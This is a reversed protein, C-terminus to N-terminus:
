RLRSENRIMELVATNNRSNELIARLMEANQRTNGEIKELLDLERAQLDHTRRIQEATQHLSMIADHAPGMMLWQPIASAHGNKDRTGRFLAFLGGGIILLGLALQVVPFAGLSRFAETELM